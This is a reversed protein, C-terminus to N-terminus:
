AHGPLLFQPFFTRNFAPLLRQQGVIIVLLFYLGAWPSTAYIATYMVVNWDELTLVQFVTVM